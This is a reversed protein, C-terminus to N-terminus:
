SCKADMVVEMCSFVALLMVCEKDSGEETCTKFCANCRLNHSYNTYVPLVVLNYKVGSTLVIMRLCRKM